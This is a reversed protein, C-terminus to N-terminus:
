LGFFAAMEASADIEQSTTGIFRAIQGPMEAGGPWTHGGGEIRYFTVQDRPCDYTVRTVTTGDNVNDPLDVSTAGSCGAVEAWFAITTEAPILDEGGPGDNGGGGRNRGMQLNPRGGEYLMLPDDTGSFMLVPTSDSPDCRAYLTSTFNAAVPAIGAVLDPANCALNHAMAGGNSIGSAYVRDPSAGRNDVVWDVVARLFSIDDAKDAAAGRGDNWTGDLAEPFVAIFGEDDSVGVMTNRSAMGSASGGGGHLALMIAPNRDLRDPTHVFFIRSNGDVTIEIQETNAPLAGGGGGFGGGGRQQMRERMRERFSQSEATPACAVTLLAFTSLCITLSRPTLYM